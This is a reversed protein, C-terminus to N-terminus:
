KGEQLLNRGKETPVLDWDERVQFAIGTETRYRALGRDILEQVDSIRFSGAPMRLDALSSTDRVGGFFEKLLQLDCIHVRPMIMFLLTVFVLRLVLSRHVGFLGYSAVAFRM